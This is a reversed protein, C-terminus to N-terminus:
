QCLPHPLRGDFLLLRLRLGPPPAFGLAACLVLQRKLSLIGVSDVSCVLSSWESALGWDLRVLQPPELVLLLPLQKLTGLLHYQGAPFPLQMLFATLHPRLDAQPRCLM